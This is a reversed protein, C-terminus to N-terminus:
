LVIFYDIHLIFKKILFIRVLVNEQFLRFVIIINGLGRLDYLAELPNHAYKMKNFFGHIWEDHNGLCAITMVGDNSTDPYKELFLNLQRMMEEKNFGNGLNGSFIDGLHFVKPVKRKVAYDYVGEILSFSELKSNGIHTDSILIFEKDENDDVKFDYYHKSYSSDWFYRDLFKYTSEGSWYDNRILCGSKCYIDYFVDFLGEETFSINDKGLLSRIQEISLEEYKEFLHFLRFYLQQRKEWADM